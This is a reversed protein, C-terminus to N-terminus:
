VHARGIKRKQGNITVYSTGNDVWFNNYGGVNGAAGTSGDGGIPPAARDARDPQAARERRDAAAQELRRAQQDTMTLQNGFAAPRELPTMTALDYVGQLDPHGDATRPMAGSAPRPAAAPAQPQQGHAPVQWAALVAALCVATAASTLHYSRM